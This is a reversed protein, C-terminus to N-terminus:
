GVCSVCSTCGFTVRVLCVCVMCMSCVYWTSVGCVCVCECM